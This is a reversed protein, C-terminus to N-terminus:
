GTLGFAEGSGLMWPSSRAFRRNAAFNRFREEDDGAKLRARSATASVEVLSPHVEPTLRRAVVIVSAVMLVPFTFSGRWVSLVDSVGVVRALTSSEYM